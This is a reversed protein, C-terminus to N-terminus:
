NVVVNEDIKKEIFKQHEKGSRNLIAAMEDHLLEESYKKQYISLIDSGNSETIRYELEAFNVKVENHYEVDGFGDRNLTKYKYTLIISPNLELPENLLLERLNAISKASRINKDANTNVNLKNTNSVAILIKNEIYFKDFKSYNELLRELLPQLSKDFIDLIVVKERKVIKSSFKRLKQELLSLDRDLNDPEEISEGNAGKILIELSTAVNRAILELFPEFNDNDAQNLASLYVDKETTKIIIPLYGYQMLILNTLLRIVRGNADDFPQIRLFKHHFEAVLIIPNVDDEDRKAEFREILEKMKLPTEKPTSFFLIEGTKNLINNPTEKYKGLKVLKKISTGDAALSEIEYPELLLVEHIQQIFEESIVVNEDAIDFIWSVIDNHIKMEICDKLLRGNATLGHMILAKTDSFSLGSGSLNTSHYNWDLRFKQLIKQEVFQNLPRLEDLEAKLKKVKELTEM